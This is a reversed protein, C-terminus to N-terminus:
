YSHMSHVRSYGFMCKSKHVSYLAMGRVIVLIHLTQHVKKKGRNGLLGDAGDSILHYFLSSDTALAMCATVYLSFVPKM